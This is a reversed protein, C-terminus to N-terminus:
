ARMEAPVTIEMRCHPINNELFMDSTVRWGNQAYFRVATERAHCFLNETGWGGVVVYAAQLMLGGLGRGQQTEDVAVQRMKVSGDPKKQLILCALIKGTEDFGGLLYDEKDQLMEEPTVHLGLPKRLIRERLALMAQYDASDCTIHRFDV